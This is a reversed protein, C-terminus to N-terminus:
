HPWHPGPVGSAYLNALCKRLDNASEHRSLLLDSLFLNEGAAPTDNIDGLRTVEASTPLVPPM